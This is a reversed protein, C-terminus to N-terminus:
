ETKYFAMILEGKQDYFMDPHEKPQWKVVNKDECRFWISSNRFRFEVFSAYSELSNNKNIFGVLDYKKGQIGILNYLDLKQKLKFSVQSSNKGRQIIIILNEPFSDYRQCQKHDTEKLCKSCYKKSDIINNIKYTIYNEIDPIMNKELDITIFCYSSFSYTQMSCNMCKYINKMLGMIKKSLYSNFQGFYINTFNIMMEVENTEDFEESTYILHNNFNNNLIASNNMENHLQSILFVLALTPDIEKTKDFQSNQACITERLSKISNLYLLMEKELFSKLCRVFAETICKDKIENESLNKYYSTIDQFQYLCRIIADLSTNRNYKKSFEKQIKELIYKSDPRKDKDEELMENIINKMEESYPLNDDDGWDDPGHLYCLQYFTVGMSYVDAKQDYGIENLMEQATFGESQIITGHYQLEEKELIDRYSVNLYKSKKKKEKNNEKDKKLVAATGFDGIKINMNNDMFINGPKIDRHIVGKEHVYALGQMCQLFINWLDEEPIYTGSKKHSELLNNLDGNEANETIIYLVDEEQFYKYYKILRPHSLVTLFKSENLALQYAKEGKNSLLGGLDMIKMAYVKNNIKSKVKLVKGFGGLGLQQLLEFDDPKDGINDIENKDERKEIALYTKGDIGKMEEFENM